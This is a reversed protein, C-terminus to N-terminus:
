KEGLKGVACRGDKDVRHPFPAADCHCVEMLDVRFHDGSCKRCRPRRPAYIGTAFRHRARCPESSCRVSRYKM